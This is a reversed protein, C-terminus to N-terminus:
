AVIKLAPADTQPEPDGFRLSYRLECLEMFNENSLGIQAEKDGNSIILLVRDENPREAINLVGGNTGDIQFIRRPQKTM